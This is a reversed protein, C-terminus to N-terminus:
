AMRPQLVYGFRAPMQPWPMEAAALAASSPLPPRHWTWRTCSASASTPTSRVAAGAEDLWISRLAGSRARHAVRAPHLGPAPRCAGCGPRPRWNWTSASRGTRSSGPAPRTAAYNRHIFSACSTTDIRSGKVQPFPGAAQMRDDRMYWDGRADLALWGHCHPVNPWKRLAAEVIDDM